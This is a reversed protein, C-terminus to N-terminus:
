SEKVYLPLIKQTLYQVQGVLKSIKIAYSIFDIVPEVPSSCVKYTSYYRFENSLQELEISIEVLRARILVEKIIM